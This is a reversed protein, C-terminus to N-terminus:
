QTANKDAEFIRRWYDLTETKGDHKWRWYDTGAVRPDKKDEELVKGAAASISMVEGKYEVKNNDDITKCTTNPKNKFSLTTDPKIGIMQFKFRPRIKKGVKIFTELQKKSDDDTDPHERFAQAAAIILQQNKDWFKTLLEKEEDQYAMILAGKNKSDDDFNIAPRSLANLYDQIIEKTKTNISKKLMPILIKDAIMQYNIQIFEKCHCEPEKLAQLDIDSIPTLYLYLNHTAQKKKAEEQKEKEFHEFYKQTQLNNESSEVKNEIILKVIFDKGHFTLEIYLDLRGVREIHKEREIKMETIRIDDIILAHLFDKPLSIRNKDKNSHESIVFELLKRVAFNGLQHNSSNDLLWTLFRSHADEKRSVGLMEMYSPESYHDILKSTEADNRFKLIEKQVDINEM